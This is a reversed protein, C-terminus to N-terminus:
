PQSGAPLNYGHLCILPLATAPLPCKEIQWTKSPAIPGYATKNDDIFRSWLSNGTQPDVAALKRLRAAPFEPNVVCWATPFARGERKYVTPSAMVDIGTSGFLSAESTIKHTAADFTIRSLKAALIQFTTRQRDEDSTVVLASPDGAAQLMVPDQRATEKTAPKANALISATDNDTFMAWSRGKFAGEFTIPRQPFRMQGDFTLPDLPDEFGPQYSIFDGPRNRGWPDYWLPPASHFLHTPLTKWKWPRDFNAPSPGRSYFKATFNPDDLPAEWVTGPEAKPGSVVSMGTYKTRNVLLLPIDDFFVFMLKNQEKFLNLSALPFDAPYPLKLVAYWLMIRIDRETLKRDPGVAAALANEVEVAMHGIWSDKLRKVMDPWPKKLPKVRPTPWERTLERDLDSYPTVSSFWPVVSWHPVLQSLGGPTPYRCLVSAGRRDSLIVLPKGTHAKVQTWGSPPANGEFPGYVIYSNGDAPSTYKGGEDSLALHATMGDTLPASPNTREAIWAGVKMTDFLENPDVPPNYSTPPTGLRGVQRTSWASGSKLTPKLNGSTDVECAYVGAETGWWLQKNAWALTHKGGAAVPTEPSWSGKEAFAMVDVTRLANDGIYAILRQDEMLAISLEAQQRWKRTSSQTLANDCAHITGDGQVIFIAREPEDFSHRRVVPPSFCWQAVARRKDALEQRLSAILTRAAAGGGSSGTMERLAKLMRFFDTALTDLRDREDTAPAAASQQTTLRLWEDEAQELLTAWEVKQIVKQLEGLAANAQTVKSADRILKLTPEKKGSRIDWMTLEVGDLVYIKGASVTWGHIYTTAKISPLREYITAGSSIVEALYIMATNGFVVLGAPNDVIVPQNMTRALSAPLKFDISVAPQLDGAAGLLDDSM